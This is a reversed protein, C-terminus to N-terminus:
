RKLTGRFVITGDIWVLIGNEYEWVVTHDNRYRGEMGRIEEPLVSISGDPLKMIVVGARTDHIIEVQEGTDSSYTAATGLVRAPAPITVPSSAAGSATVPLLIMLLASHTLMMKMAAGSDANADHSVADTILM